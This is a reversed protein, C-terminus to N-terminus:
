AAARAFARRLRGAIVDPHALDAWVWRVVQWGLERLRDERLKERYVVQGPDEGDRLLRGYKM